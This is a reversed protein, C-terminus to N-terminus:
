QSRKEAFCDGEMVCSIAEAFLAEGFKGRQWELIGMTNLLEGQKNQEGLREAIKLAELYYQGAQSFNNAQERTVRAMGELAELEGPGNKAQQCLGRVKEWATVAQSYKGEHEYVTGIKTWFLREAQFDELQAFLAAGEELYPLAESHRDLAILTEGVLRLSKALGEAYNCKRSLDLAEKHYELSEEHKGQDWFINAIVSLQFMQHLWLRHERCIELGREIISIATDNDGLDRHITAASHRTVVQKVPDAIEDAIDLAQEVCKLAGKYDGSHRLVNGLNTLDGAIATKEGLQRSISLAAENNAVAAQTAGRQWDLFGLSRLTNREGAADILEQSIRLSDRLVPEASDFRGLITFLEGQRRYVDALKTRDKTIELLSLLEDIIRQQREREGLTECLQEQQLLIDTLTERRKNDEPLKLLWGHVRELLKLAGEFQSLGKAKKAAEQGYQVAKQWIEAHGFHYALQDVHEEIREPYLEEIAEGVLGHMPKRQHKLLCDYAVEQTLIHKFKYIAEPAVSIQQIL